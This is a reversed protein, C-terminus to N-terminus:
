ETEAIKIKQGSHIQCPKQDQNGDERAGGRVPRTGTFECRAHITPDSRGPEHSFGNQGSLPKFPRSVCPMAGIGCELSRYPGAVALIADGGDVARDGHRQAVWHVKM